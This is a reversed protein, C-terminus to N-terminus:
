LQVPGTGSGTKFVAGAPIIGCDHPRPRNEHGAPDPQPRHFRLHRDRWCLTWTKTVETHHLARAPIRQACWRQMRAVHLDPPTTPIGAM